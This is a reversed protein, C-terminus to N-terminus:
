GPFLSTGSSYKMVLSAVATAGGAALFFTAPGNIVVQETDGLVYGASSAASIGNVIALTAGSFKKIIWGNVGASPMVQVNAASTMAIITAGLKYTDTYQAM